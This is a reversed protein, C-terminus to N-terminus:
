AICSKIGEVKKIYDQILELEEELDNLTDMDCIYNGVYADHIHRSLECKRSYLARLLVELNKGSFQVIKGKRNKRV